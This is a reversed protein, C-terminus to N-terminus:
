CLIGDRITAEIIQKYKFRYTHLDHNKNLDISKAAGDSLTKADFMMM